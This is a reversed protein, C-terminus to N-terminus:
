RIFIKDTDSFNWSKIAILKCYPTLHSFSSSSPVTITSLSYINLEPMYWGIFYQHEPINSWSTKIYYSTLLTEDRLLNRGWFSEVSCVGHIWSSLSSSVKSVFVVAPTVYLREQEVNKRSIFQQLKWSQNFFVLAANM